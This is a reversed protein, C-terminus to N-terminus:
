AGSAQVFWSMWIAPALFAGFPVAANARLAEKRFISRGVVAVIAGSVALALALPMYSWSLWCAGAAALKVDGLGLGEVKRVARYGARVALLLGAAALCRVASDSLEEVSYDSKKLTWALGLVLIALSALDPIEFRDIDAIAVYLVAAALLVGFVIDDLDLFLVMSASALGFALISALDWGYGFSRM